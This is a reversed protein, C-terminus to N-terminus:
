NKNCDSEEWYDSKEWFLTQQKETSHDHKWFDFNKMQRQKQSGNM